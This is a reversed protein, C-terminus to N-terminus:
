RSRVIAVAAALTACMLLPSRLPIAPRDDPPMKTAIVAHAAIAVALAITGYLVRQRPSWARFSRRAARAARVGASEQYALSLRSLMAALVNVVRSDCIIQSARDLAQLADRQRM